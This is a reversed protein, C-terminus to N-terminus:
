LGLYTTFYNDCRHYHNTKQVKNFVGKKDDKLPDAVDVARHVLLM